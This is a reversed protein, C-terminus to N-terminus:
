KIRTEEINEKRDKNIRKKIEKHLHGVSIVSWHGLLTSKV